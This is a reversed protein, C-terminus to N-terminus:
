FVVNTHVGLVVADNYLNKYAGVKHFYEFVPMIKIGKYAAIGYNLEFVMANSQASIANNLLSFSGNEMFMDGQSMQYKQAGRLSRPITYYTMMFGIQDYPRAHWFGRNLLGLNYYDKFSSTSPSQHGWNGLIYLGHTEMPDNRYIMQGFMMWYQTANDRKGSETIQSSWTDYKSTDYGGGIRYYGDLQNKGFKPTYSFEVPIFAGTAHKTGWSVGAPGGQGTEGFPTSEYAGVQVSFQDSFNYLIRGAWVNNPWASYGQQAGMSTMQSCTAATVYECAFPSVAFDSGVDYRGIKINVKNDWLAQEAYLNYLRLFRDNSSGYIEQSNMYPDGIYDASTNRGALNMAILHTSFGKWGIIKEWDIDLTFEVEHAYDAGKKKGGRVVGTTEAIWALGFQIGYQDLYKNASESFLAEDPDYATDIHYPTSPASEVTASPTTTDKSSKSADTSSQAYAHTGTLSLLFICYIYTTILYPKFYYKTVMCFLRHHSYFHCRNFLLFIIFKFLLM